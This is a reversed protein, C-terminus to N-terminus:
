ADQQSGFATHVMQGYEALSRIIPHEDIFEFQEQRDSRRGILKSISQLRYAGHTCATECAQEIADAAHRRSLNLLGMLSRMGEIGRQQIVREAWRGTHPGILSARDLLWASGREIGGRKRPHVHQDDTHFRQDARTVHVAIQEFRQNFIRVMHSDWRAWVERGLYEPPVSYYRRAVEIHGDRSVKRKGENFSPFRGAPLALLASREEGEFCNKVQKRTTGHIRQDATHTEWELLYRNQEALSAFRKGKLANDQVYGVIREVKGKHRPMRPRTPLIVTGYHECFSLIKRNLQPEYWDAKTVAAKLNDIVLTKPVGGFHAFGNEMCRIFQETTQVFVAESYAKRSYSLVMRFVYTRRRKGDPTIIPAGTGFDVQAEDGPNCEMRRFPLPAAAELQRVFRKVSQYSGAFQEDCVLDQWIRTASLGTELKAQIVGRLPECLSRRGTSGLTSIAPKSEAWGPPPNPRNVGGSGATSIAPKSGDGAGEAALALRIYRGVTERHIGTERAIRRQSWGRKWLATITAQDAMDLVNAM